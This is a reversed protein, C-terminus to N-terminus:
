WQNWGPHTIAIDGADNRSAALVLPVRDVLRKPSHGGGCTWPLGPLRLGARGGRAGEDHQVGHRGRRTRRRGRRSSGDTAAARCHGTLCARQRRPRIIRRPM